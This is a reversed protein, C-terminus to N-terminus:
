EAAAAGGLPSLFAHEVYILDAVLPTVGGTDDSARTAFVM